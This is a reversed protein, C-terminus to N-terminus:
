ANIRLLSEERVIKTMKVKCFVCTDPMFCDEHCVKTGCVCRCIKVVHKKKTMDFAKGCSHCTLEISFPDALDPRTKKPVCEEVIKMFKKPGGHDAFWRAGAKSQFAYYTTPDQFWKHIQVISGHDCEKMLAEGHKWNEYTSRDPRFGLM